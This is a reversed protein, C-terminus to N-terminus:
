IESMAKERKSKKGCGSHAEPKSCLAHLQKVVAQFICTYTNYVPVTM